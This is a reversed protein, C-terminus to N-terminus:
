LEDNILHQEFGKGEKLKQIASDLRMENKRSSLEHSTAMLANYEELSMLVIGSNKGRSIILTEFNKSVWDLYFKIEKRFNTVTTVQM